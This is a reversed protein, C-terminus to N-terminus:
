QHNRRRGHHNGRCLGAVPLQDDRCRHYIHRFYRYLHYSFREIGSGALYQRKRVYSSPTNATCGNADHYNVTITKAGNTSWLINVSSTGAGGTITGGASVTWIYNTMGADTTYTGTSNLCVSAPGDLSPVPLPNVTVPYATPTLATCGNADNYNVSVTQAGATNWTVTVTNNAPGGGSTITGGASVAWIYNTMGPQSTYVVGSTGACLVGTGSVSPTPLAHVTVDKVTPTAATCVTGNVYNVSVSQAAWLPGYFRSSRMM